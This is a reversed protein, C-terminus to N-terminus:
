RVATDRKCAQRSAGHLFTVPGAPAVNAEAHRMPQDMTEGLWNKSSLPVRYSQWRSGGHTMTAATFRETELHLSARMQALLGAITGWVRSTACAVGGRAM